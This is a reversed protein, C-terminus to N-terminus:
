NKFCVVKADPYNRNFDDLFVNFEFRTARLRFANDMTQEGDTTYSYYRAYAINYEDLLNEFMRPADTVAIWGVTNVDKKHNLM